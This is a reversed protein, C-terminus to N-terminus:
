RGDDVLFGRALTALEAWCRADVALGDRRARRSAEALAAATISPDRRPAPGLRCTWPGAALPPTGCFGIGGTATTWCGGGAGLAAWSLAITTGTRRTHEVLAPWLAFPEHIGDIRSPSRDLALLDGLPAALLLGSSGPPVRVDGGADTAISCAPIPGERALMARLAALGTGTGTELREVTIAAAAAAAHHVGRVRLVRLTVDRVQRTSIRVTTSVPAEPTAVSM